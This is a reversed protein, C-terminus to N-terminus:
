SHTILNELLDYFEGFCNFFVIVLIINQIIRQYRIIFVVADVMFEHVQFLLVGLIDLGVARREPDAPRPVIGKGLHLVGHAHVGQLIHEGQVLDPVKVAPHPFCDCRGPVHHLVLDIAERHRQLIGVADKGPTRGPAIAKHALIHGFVELGEVANRELDVVRGM